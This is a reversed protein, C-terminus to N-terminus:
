RNSRVWNEAQPALQGGLGREDSAVLGVTHLREADRGEDTADRRGRLRVLRLPQRVVSPPPSTPRPPIYVSVFPLLRVRDAEIM